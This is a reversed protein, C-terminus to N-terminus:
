RTQVPSEAACPSSTWQSSRRRATGTRGPVLRGVAHMAALMPTRPAFTTVISERTRPALAGLAAVVDAAPYHLLSDMALVHDFTGFTADLMDGAVYEIRSAVASPTREAAVALLSPAVDVAVVYAGRQALAVAVAGTGCGADLVRRGALDRPLWGLLTDRMLDRGARVSRRVRGLSATETTLAAWQASATRDFYSAVWAKRADYTTSDTLAAQTPQM